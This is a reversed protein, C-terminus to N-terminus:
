NQLTLPTSTSSSTSAGSSLNQYTSGLGLDNLIQTIPKAGTPANIPAVNNTPKITASGDFNFADTGTGKFNVKLDTAHTKTNLNAVLSGTMTSGGTKSYSSIFFPYNSGGKYDLGVDTYSSGPNKADTFRVKYLVRTNVDAWIDFTNHPNINNASQQMSDYILDLDNEYNNQKIWGNLKSARLADRQATIYKKVNTKDLAVQYRFTKHGDVTALGYKKVVTLIAKNKDTTFVYQENVRGFANAEDIIQDHTPSSTSSAGKQLSDFLSHNIVIWQNNLANIQSDLGLGQTYSTLTNLGNVKFYIDPIATKNKIERVDIGLRGSGLNLDATTDSDDKNSNFTLKGDTALSGGGFTYSGSAVYGKYNLKAQDDLYTILKEYGKGTNKLAQGYIISSNMYYGFYAAASAGGLILVAGVSILLPKIFRRRPSSLPQVATPPAASFQQGQVNPTDFSGVFGQPQPQVAPPGGPLTSAAPNFGGSVVQGGSAPPSVPQPATFGAPQVPAAPSVPVDPAPSAPTIPTLDPDTPPM